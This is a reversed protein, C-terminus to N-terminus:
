LRAPRRARRARAGPPLLPIRQARRAAQPDPARLAPRVEDDADRRELAGTDGRQALSGHPARRSPCPKRSIGRKTDATLRHVFIVPATMIAASATPTSAVGRTPVHKEIRSQRRSHLRLIAASHPR